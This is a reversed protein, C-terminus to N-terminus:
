LLSIALEYFLSFLRLGLCKHGPSQEIRRIKNQLDMANIRHDYKAEKDLVM